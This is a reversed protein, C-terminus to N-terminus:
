QEVNSKALKQVSIVYVYKIQIYIFNYINIEYYKNSLKKTKNNNILMRMNELDCLELCM